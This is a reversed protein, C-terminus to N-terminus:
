YAMVLRLSECIQPVDPLVAAELSPHFGVHVDPRSVLLPPASLLDWYDPRSAIEAIIAQGFSCTRNDEQVVVVRGTKELSRRIRIWDCPVISCLDLVEVGVGEREMAAAADLALECCNGWAVITVDSSERCVRAEGIKFPADPQWPFRKRFLHKPLLL